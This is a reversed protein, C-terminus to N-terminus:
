FVEGEQFKLRQYEALKMAFKRLELSVGREGIQIEDCSYAIQTFTQGRFYYRRAIEKQIDTVVMESLVKEFESLLTMNMFSKENETLTRRPM